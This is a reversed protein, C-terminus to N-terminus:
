VPRTLSTKGLPPAAGIPLCSGPLHWLKLISYELANVAVGFEHESRALLLEEGVLIESVFGLAALSALTFALLPAGATM